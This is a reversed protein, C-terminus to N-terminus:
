NRDKEVRLPLSGDVLRAQLLEGDAVDAVSKV